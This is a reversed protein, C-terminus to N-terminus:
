GDVQGGGNLGFFRPGSWHAGTVEKAIASLSAYRREEFSFGDEEATVRVTRGNWSRVLRTGPKIASGASPRGARAERVAKMEDRGGTARQLQYAIGLQLLAASMRPAPSRYTREWEARLQAPSMTALAALKDDFRSM